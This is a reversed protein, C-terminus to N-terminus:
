KEFKMFFYHRLEICNFCFDYNTSLEQWFHDVISINNEENKDINLLWQDRIGQVFKNFNEENYINKVLFEIDKKLPDEDNMKKLIIQNNEILNIRWIIQCLSIFEEFNEVPFNQKLFYIKESSNSALTFLKLIMFEDNDFKENFNSLDLLAFQYKIYKNENENQNILFNQYFSKRESPEKIAYLGEKIDNIIYERIKFNKLIERIFDEAQNGSLLNDYSICGM